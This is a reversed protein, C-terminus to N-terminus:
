WRRGRVANFIGRRMDGEIKRQFVAGALAAGPGVQIPANGEGVVVISTSNTDPVIAQAVYGPNLVHEGPVTVNVVVTNGNSDRTVYSTVKDGLAGSFPSIGADNITGAASAPADDGPTPNDIVAQTVNQTLGNSSYPTSTQANYAHYGGQNPGIAGPNAPGAPIVFSGIEKGPPDCVSSGDTLPVCERGSPDTHNVPDGHAYAYLNPSDEYGLPDAQMFRAYPRCSTVTTAARRRLTAVHSRNPSLNM